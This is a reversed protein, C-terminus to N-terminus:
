WEKERMERVFVNACMRVCECVNACVRECECV